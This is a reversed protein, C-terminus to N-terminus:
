IKNNEILDSWKSLIVSNAFLEDYVKKSNDCFEEIWDRQSAVASILKSAAEPNKLDLLYGFRRTVILSALESSQDVLALVPKGHALYSMTKSPYAYCTMEEILSILCIDANEIIANAEEPAKHGLFLVNTMENRVRCELHKRSVGDGVIILQADTFRLFTFIDLIFDLNQFRGINGAYVIKLPFNPNNRKVPKKSLKVLVDPLFNNMLKINFYKGCSRYELTSQMDRSHVLVPESYKCTASDLTEMLQYFYKNKVDGSLQGVEPYIDMCYYIVRIKKLRAILTVMFAPLIPPMSTVIIVKYNNKAILFFSVLGMIFANIIRRMSSKQDAALNIRKVRFLGNCGIGNKLSQDNVRYSPTGTLVEVEHGKQVLHKCIGNMIRGCSSEDPPFYRHVVFVLM